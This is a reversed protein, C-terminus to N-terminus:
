IYKAFAPNLPNSIISGPSQTDFTNRINIPIDLQEVPQISSPCLVTAGSESLAVMQSYTLYRIHKADKHVNPNKDYVGSVDTWNEYLDARVGVAVLAGTTDSGGRELLVTNGLLDKGYFGPIVCKTQIKAIKDLSDQLLLKSPVGAPDDSKSQKSQTTAHNEFVLLDAADVFKYGLVCALVKASFYEGRSVTHARDKKKISSSIDAILGDVDVKDLIQLDKAIGVFRTVIKPDITGSEFSQILLDTIKHTGGDMVGKSVGHEPSGGIRPDNNQCELIDACVFPEVGQKKKGPASVVIYQRQPDGEVIHAVRLISEADALSSGGFKSVM